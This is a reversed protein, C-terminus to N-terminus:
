QESYFSSENRFYEKLYSSFYIGNEDHTKYYDEKEITTIGNYKLDSLLDIIHEDYTHEQKSYLVHVITKSNKHNAIMEPLMRNLKNITIEDAQQGMMAFFVDRLKEPSLYTGVHYQCAGAFIEDAEYKLGYYIACTGGKSSGAM